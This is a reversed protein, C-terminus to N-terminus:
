RVKGKLEVVDGFCVAFGKQILKVITMDNFVPGRQGATWKAQHGIRRLPRRKLCALAREEATRYYSYYYVKKVGAKTTYRVTTSGSTTM